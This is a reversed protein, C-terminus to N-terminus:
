FYLSTASYLDNKFYAAMLLETTTPKIPGEYGFLTPIQHISPQLEKILKCLKLNEEAGEKLQANPNVSSVFGRYFYGKVPLITKDGDLVWDAPIMTFMVPVNLHKLVQAVFYAEYNRFGEMQMGTVAIVNADTDRIKGYIIKSLIGSASLIPMNLKKLTISEHKGFYNEVKNYTATNQFLIGYDFREIGMNKMNEKITKIAEEIQTENFPALERPSVLPVELIKELDGSFKVHMDIEKRIEPKLKLKKIIELLLVKMVPVAREANKLVDLHSLPEARDMVDTVMAIGLTKMGIAAGAVFEPVTSMGVTDMGINTLFDCELKSEYTPGTLWYYAGEFLHKQIDKVNPMAKIEPHDKLSKGCARAIDLLEPDFCKKPDFNKQAVFRPDNIIAIINNIVM